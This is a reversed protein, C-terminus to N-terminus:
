YLALFVDMCFAFTSLLSLGSLPDEMLGQATLTLMAWLSVSLPGALTWHHKETEWFVEHGCTYLCCTQIMCQEQSSPATNLASPSQPFIPPLLDVCFKLCSMLHSLNLMTKQVKSNVDSYFHTLFTMKWFFFFFFGQFDKSFGETQPTPTVNLSKVWFFGHLSHLTQVSLSM